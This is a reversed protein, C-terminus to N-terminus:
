RRSSYAIFLNLPLMLADLPQNPHISPWAETEPHLHAINEYSVQKDTKTPACCGCYPKGCCTCVNAEIGSGEIAQEKFKSPTTGLTAMTTSCYHPNSKPATIPIGDMELYPYVISQDPDQAGSYTPSCCDCFPEGCCLCWTTEISSQEVTQANATPSSSIISAGAIMLAIAFVKFMISYEQSCNFPHVNEEIRRSLDVLNLPLNWHPAFINCKQLM